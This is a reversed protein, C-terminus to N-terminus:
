RSIISASIWRKEAPQCNAAEPLFAYTNRALAMQVSSLRWSAAPLKTLKCYWLVRAMGLWLILRETKFM